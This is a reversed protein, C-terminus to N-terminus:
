LLRATSRLDCFLHSLDLLGLRQEDFLDGSFSNIYQFYALQTPLFGEKLEFGCNPINQLSVGPSIALAPNLILIQVNSRSPLLEILSFAPRM